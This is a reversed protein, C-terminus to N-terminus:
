LGLYLSEDTCLYEVIVDKTVLWIKALDNRELGSQGFVQTAIDGSIFGSNASDWTRFISDYQKKEAKSLAWGQPKAAGTPTSAM